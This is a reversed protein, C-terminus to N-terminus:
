GLTVAVPTQAPRGARPGPFQRLVHLPHGRRPRRHRVVRGLRCNTQGLAARAAPLTLRTLKPVLCPGLPFQALAADPVQIAPTRAVRLRRGHGFSWYSGSPLGQVVTGDAPTSNLHALPNGLNALNWPDIQVPAASPFLSPDAIAFPYGGAVRYLAGTTAEVFTGDVPVADLAAFQQPGVQTSPQPGGFGSWDSVYLPAGGAIRFFQGTASQQIFTGDPIVGNSQGATATDGDVSDSDINLTVGGYTDNHDGAYQHLRHHGAWVSTPIYASDTSQSGNWEAFWIDDPEPYSTGYRAALDSIGSGSSSYVGSQYGDAHLRNTWAALFSLVASSVASTRSYAEMDFYIPNGPGVGLSSARSVADTAAARGQAGAQSPDIAACGCSNGPAQLGVYTLILHWGAATQARVWPATLNPQSCAMNTGGIYVGVARFPSGAWANMAGASPASCADFGLGAFSAQAASARQTHRQAGRGARAITDAARRLVVAGSGRPEVLVARSRGAVAAAACRQEHSPPGLYVAAVDFRVCRHPQAALRIVPWSAPVTVVAGRYRVTRVAAGAGAPLACIVVVAATIPGM